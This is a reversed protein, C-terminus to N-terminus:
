RMVERMGRYICKRAVNVRKIRLGADVYPRSLEIEYLKALREHKQEVTDPSTVIATIRTRLTKTRNM